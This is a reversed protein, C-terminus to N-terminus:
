SRVLSRIRNWIPWVYKWLFQTRTLWAVFQREPGLGFRVTTGDREVAVVRGLICHSSATEPCCGKGDGQIVWQTGVRGVVRHLVLRSRDNIRRVFAVVEGLRPSTDVLSAVEVTDCDLIFPTMSSGRACFRFRCGKELVSEMLQALAGSSLSVVNGEHRKLSLRGKPFFTSKRLCTEADM